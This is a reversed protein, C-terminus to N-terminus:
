GFNVYLDIKLLNKGFWVLKCSKKIQCKESWNATHEQAVFSGELSKGYERDLLLVISNFILTIYSFYLRTYMYYFRFITDRAWWMLNYVTCVGRICSCHLCKMLNQTLNLIKVFSEKDFM